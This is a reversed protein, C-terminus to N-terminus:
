KSEVPIAKTVEALVELSINPDFKALPSRKLQLTAM